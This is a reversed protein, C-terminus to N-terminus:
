YQGFVRGHDKYSCRIKFVLITIVVCYFFVLRIVKERYSAFLTCQNMDNVNSECAIRVMDNVVCEYWYEGMCFFRM